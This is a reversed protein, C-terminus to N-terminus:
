EGANYAPKRKKRQGAHWAPQGKARMIACVGRMREDEKGEFFGEFHINYVYYIIYYEKGLFDAM